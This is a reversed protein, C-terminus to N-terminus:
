ANIGYYCNCNSTCINSTKGIQNNSIWCLRDLASDITLDNILDNGSKTEVFLNATSNSTTHAFWIDKTGIWFIM